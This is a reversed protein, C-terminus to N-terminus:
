RPLSSLVQVAVYVVHRSDLGIPHFADETLAGRNDAACRPLPRVATQEQNMADSLFIGHRLHATPVDRGSSAVTDFELALMREPQGRKGLKAITPKVASKRRPSSLHLHRAVRRSGKIGEAQRCQRRQIEGVIRM